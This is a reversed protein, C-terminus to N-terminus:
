QELTKQGDKIANNQICKKSFSALQRQHCPNGHIRM